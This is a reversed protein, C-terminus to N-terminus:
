SKIAVILDAYKLDPATFTHGHPTGTVGTGTDTQFGTGWQAQPSSNFVNFGPVGDGPGPAFNKRIFNHFHPAIQLTTLAISSTNYLTASTAWASFGVAGAVKAGGTSANLRVACDTFDSATDVTWGVPATAQHLLARTSSPAGWTVAAQEVTALDTPDVGDALNSLKQTNANFPASFEIQGDYAMRIFAFLAQFYLPANHAVAEGVSPPSNASPTESLDSWTVPVTM